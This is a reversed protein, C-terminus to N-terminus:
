PKEKAIIISDPCSILNDRTMMFTGFVTNIHVIEIGIKTHQVFYGPHGKRRWFRELLSPSVGDMWTGPPNFLPGFENLNMAESM